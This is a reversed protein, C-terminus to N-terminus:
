VFIFNRFVKCYRNLIKFQKKHKYIMMYINGQKIPRIEDSAINVTQQNGVCNLSTKTYSIIERKNSTKIQIGKIKETGTSSKIKFFYQFM